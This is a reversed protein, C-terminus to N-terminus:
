KDNRDYKYILEALWDELILDGSNIAATSVKTVTNNAPSNNKVAIDVPLEKVSQMVKSEVAYYLDVIQDLATHATLVRTVIDATATKAAAVQKKIGEYSKIQSDLVDFVGLLEESCRLMVSYAERLEINLAALDHCNFKLYDM